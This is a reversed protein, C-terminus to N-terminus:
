ASGVPVGIGDEEQDDQVFVGEEVFAKIGATTVEDSKGVALEIMGRALCALAKCAPEDYDLTDLVEFHCDGSEKDLSLVMYIRNQECEITSGVDSKAM